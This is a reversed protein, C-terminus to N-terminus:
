RGGAEDAPKKDEKPEPLHADDKVSVSGFFGIMM